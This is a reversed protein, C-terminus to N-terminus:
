RARGARRVGPHAPRGRDGRRVDDALQGARAPVRRQLSTGMAVNCASLVVTRPMAACRELDFVTLPATPWGCRRSCRTTAATRATAPSTRSTPAASRRSAANRRRTAASWSRRGRPAARRARRGRRRRAGPGPGAVLAVRRVPEDRRRAIAWGTLSPTVSVPRGHLGPSSAAVAPRAACRDARHRVPRASRRCGRRCSGNPWRRRRRRSRRPPSSGALGGLGAGPQAPAPQPRLQRDGGGARRDVGARAARGPQRGGLRRVPHRRPQRVRRPRSRRAAAAVPQAPRGGPHRGGAGPPRPQPDRRELAVREHTSGARPARADAGGGVAPQQGVAAPRAADALVDDDPPRAAPLLSSTRRTAELQALLERPRGDEIALRVGIRALGDSNAAAYARLELAGLVAQHDALLRVGLNVARRARPGTAAPRGRALARVRLASPQHVVTSRSPAPRWSAAARRRRRPRRPSGCSPRWSTRGCRTPAAASRTSSPPTPPWRARRARDDAGRGGAGAAAGGPRAGGVGAPRPREFATSAASPRRSRGTSTAVRWTRKPPSSCARPWISSARPRTPSSSPGTPWRGRRTSCTPRSCREPTISGSRGPWRDTTAAAASTRRPGSSPSSPRRSTAPSRGSTPSTRSPSRGCCRRTSSSPRSRRRRALHSRPGRRTPRALSLM